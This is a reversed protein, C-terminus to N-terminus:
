IKPSWMVHIWQWFHFIILFHYIRRKGSTGPKASDHAVLRKWRKQWKTQFFTKVKELIGFKSKRELRKPTRDDFTREAGDGVRGEGWSGGGRWLPIMKTPTFIKEDLSASQQQRSFSTLWPVLSQNIRLSTAVNADVIAADVLSTSLAAEMGDKGSCHKNKQERRPAATSHRCQTISKHLVVSM